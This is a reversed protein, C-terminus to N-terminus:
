HRKVLRTPAKICRHDGVLACIAPTAFTMNVGAWSLATVGAPLVPIRVARDIAEGANKEWRVKLEAGLTRGTPRFV